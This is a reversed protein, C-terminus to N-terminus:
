FISMNEIDGKVAAVAGFNCSLGDMISADCEVTGDETLNSGIGANALPCDQFNDTNEFSAGVTKSCTNFKAKTIAQILLYDYIYKEVELIQIAITVAELATKKM